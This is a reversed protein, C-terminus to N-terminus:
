FQSVALGFVATADLSDTSLRAHPFGRRVRGIFRLSTTGMGGVICCNVCM